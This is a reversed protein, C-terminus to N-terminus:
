YNLRTRVEHKLDGREKEKGRDEGQKDRPPKVDEKRGNEEEKNIHRAQWEMQLQDEM